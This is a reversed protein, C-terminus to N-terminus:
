TQSSSLGCIKTAKVHTTIRKQKHQRKQLWLYHKQRRRMAHAIGAGIRRSPDPNDGALGVVINCNKIWKSYYTWPMQCVAYGPGLRESVTYWSDYHNNKGVVAIDQGLADRELFFCPYGADTVNTSNPRYLFQGVLNSTIADVFNDFAGPADSAQGGTIINSQPDVEEICSSVVNCALFAAMLKIAIHKM